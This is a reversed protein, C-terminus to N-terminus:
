FRARLSVAYRKDTVFRSKPTLSGEQNLQTSTKVPDATLNVGELGVKLSDNITYWLSADMTGYSDAHIASYSNADRRALLYDSRWNYAIRASIGNYEYMLATNFTDESLGPLGLNTFNRFTNRSDGYASLDNPAGLDGRSDNLDNQDIYTYNLQLGLGSWAGPLFTYFQQYAIEFGKITGEGENVPLRVSMTMETGSGPNEVTETVNKQRILDKIKKHFLAFTLSGVEAFYWETTVDFQVAKEPELEPNERFGAIGVDSIGSPENCRPPTVTWDCSWTAPELDDYLWHETYSGRYAGTNRLRRLDPFFLAKSAAVRVVVDDRVGFNINVSPLFTDFSDADVTRAITGTGDLFEVLEPYDAEYFPYFGTNTPPIIEIFRSSGTSEVDYNVYRLGLNASIPITTDSELDVRIYAETRAEKTVSSEYPLYGLANTDPIGDGDIDRLYRNVRQVNSIGAAELYADYAPVNFTNSMHPFLFTRNEGSLLNRGFFDSGYTFANYLEPHDVLASKLGDSAWTASVGGWNAYDDDQIRQERESFYLGSSVSRMWGSDIDFEVDASYSQLDGEADVHTDLIFAQYYTQPNDADLARTDQLYRISPTSGTVDLHMNSNAFGNAITNNRVKATADLNQAYLEIHLRDTPSFELGLSLDEITNDVQHSRVSAYYPLDFHLSGSQFRGNADFVADTEIEPTSPDIDLLTVSNVDANFGQFGPALVHERLTESSDSRIYELTAVMNEEPNQWQLSTTLGTRDRESSGSSIGGGLPTHYTATSDFPTVGDAYFDATLATSGGPMETQTASREYFNEINVGDGHATFRKDAASFLVGFEGIDTEFRDSFLGSFSPTVEKVMDGYSGRGTFAMVRENNDFPKLTILNITGSVGGAIMDATQNKIVEVSGLLEPSVDEYNLGGSTNASFTERGNFESRVKDLGRVVVGRGEAAFHNPDTSSAFREITVGPVRQLAETVSKDPLAGIDSATIVDKVTDAYRKIDQARQLSKKVGYVVIEDIMDTEADTSQAMSPTSLAAISLALLSRKLKELSKLELKQASRQM